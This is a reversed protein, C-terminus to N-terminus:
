IYIYVKDNNNMFFFTTYIENSIISLYTNRGSIHITFNKIINYNIKDLRYCIIFDKIGCCFLYENNFESFCCDKESFDNIESNFTM